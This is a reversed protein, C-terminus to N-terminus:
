YSNQLWKDCKDCQSHEDDLLAEEVMNLYDHPDTDTVVDITAQIKGDDDCLLIKM